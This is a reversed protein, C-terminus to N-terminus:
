RARRFLPVALLSLGVLLALLLWADNFSAVAAAREVLPAVFERTAQDVPGIPVGTFRATSLGVLRAADADGAQLRAILQEVHVPARQERVTDILALAIAGGLNRMLNFLGSANGVRAAPLSGLAITTVPLICLMIASGRVLQPWLMEDFDTQYTEFGSLALGAGFLGFGLATLWRRDLYKEAWATLPACVLQAAGTVIMVSGIELPSHLRVYGLFLPMLYTAGYLGMGLVFSFSCGLAFNRDGFARLDVLPDRRRLCRLAAATGSVACVALMGLASGSLWGLTPAEKLALELVALFVALLVLSAYDIHRLLRWDPRDIAILATCLAAVVIGPPLNILFLWHWTLSETIWGGLSPGLTPALMVLVGAIMTARDHLRPPFLLFVAAFVCPIIAGGCFGQIVRWTVLVAFSHSLACALSAATFGVVAGVFLIRTSLCRALFGTLPIAVVEAMLYATQIWSTMNTTIGLATQIDPLSSAVIQIDLIAMFAGVAMAIFGIWTGLGADPLAESTM